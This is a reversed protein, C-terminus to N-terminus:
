QKFGVNIKGEFVLRAQGELYVNEIQEGQRGFDVTLIEGGRTKVEVPTKVYGAISAVIASATSGTGCAQTNEEVGREYTEVSISSPGTVEVFNVNTGAPQFEPHYRVARGLELVPLRSLGEVFIVVHPVGVRIFYYSLERQGLKIKQGGKFEKPNMLRVRVRRGNVDADIMGAPSEFRQRRPFDLKQHALLAICRFGNGCAEAESGDRNLIRIRYDIRGTTPAPNGRGPRPSRAGLNEILLVGDGGIGGHRHCVAKAFSVPNAVVKKRNDVVVFDNGSAVMKYFTIPKM